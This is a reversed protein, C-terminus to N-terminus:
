DRMWLGGDVHLVQGTLYSAADSLLFCVAAAVEEPRAFRQLPIGIKQKMEETLGATMETDVMGPSVANVRIHFRAAEFALSHTLSVLGAKSAAYDAGLWRGPGHAALSAVNVIAGQKANRMELYAERSALVASELNIRFTERWDALTVARFARAKGTGACNVLGDIRGAGRLFTRVATRATEPDDFDAPCPFARGGGSQLEECVAETRAPDRGHVGVRAGQAMAARAIALGIGRTSGTVLIARERLAHETQEATGAM